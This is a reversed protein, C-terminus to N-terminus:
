DVQLTYTVPPAYANNCCGNACPVPSNMAELTVQGTTPSTVTGDIRISSAADYTLTSGTCAGAGTPTSGDLTYCLTGGASPVSLTALFDNNQVGSAPSITPAPTGPNSDISYTGVGVASTVHGPATALARIQTVPFDVTIPTTYVTSAANPNTGDTTYFITAGPTTDALTVSQPACFTGAPPSFTPTATQPDVNLLSYTATTPGAIPCGPATAIAVLTETTGIAIPQSYVPSNPTPNTGDTTYFITGDSPLNPATIAVALPPAYSGAGPSFVPFGPCASAGDGPSGADSADGSNGGDDSAEPFVTAEPGGDSDPGGLIVDGRCGYQAAAVPIFSLLSLGLFTHRSTM